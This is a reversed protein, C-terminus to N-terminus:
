GPLIGLRVTLGDVSYNGAGRAVPVLFIANGADLVFSKAFNLKQGFSNSAYNKWDTVSAVGISKLLDAVTPDYPDHDTYTAGDPAADFFHLDINKAQDDADIIEVDQIIGGHKEPSDADAVVAGEITFYSAGMLDGPTYIGAVVTLGFTVYRIQGSKSAKFAM